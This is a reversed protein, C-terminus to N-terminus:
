APPVQTPMRAAESARRARAMRRSIWIGLLAAVLVVAIRQIWLWFRQSELEDRLNSYDIPTQDTSRELVLDQTLKRQSLWNGEYWTLWTDPTADLRSAQDGLPASYRLELQGPNFLSFHGGPEPEVIREPYTTSTPRFPSLVFLRMELGLHEHGSGTMALPYTLEESPFTFRVPLFSGSLFDGDFAVRAAVVVWGRDLYGQLVPEQRDHFVFGHKHMWRSVDEARQGRLTVFRLGGITQRDLIDVASGGVVPPAGEDSGPAVDSLDPPRSIREAEEFRILDGQEIEPQAPLPMLWAFSPDNSQFVVKVLLEETSGDWDIMADFGVIEVQGEDSVMAGCALAAQPSLLLALTVAARLIRMALSAVRLDSRTPPPLM